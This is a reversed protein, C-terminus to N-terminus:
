LQLIESIPLMTVKSIEEIPLGSELMRKAIIKTANAGGRAEAAKLEEKEDCLKKKYNFYHNREEVTMKLVSLKEVVKQMYPSHFTTPVNDHKMVYLWDDIERELRDDFQPISIFFYEPFIETTDFSKQTAPDIVHLSLKDDSEIERVITKGHYVVGKGVPFYLLSIHFIKVIKDYEVGQALSDVILRSTNFCAKHIFTSKINREIEIIYKHHEADEVIVDALSRKGMQEEKNSETDLLAIIKVDQYGQSKLLASIFGEVIEYDGKDKLLYKIAYDFSILPKDDM